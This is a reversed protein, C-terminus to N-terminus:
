GGLHRRRGGAQQGPPNLRDSWMEGCASPHNRCVEENRSLRLMWDSVIEMVLYDPALAGTEGEQLLIVVSTQKLDQNRVEQSLSFSQHFSLGWVLRPLLQVGGAHLRVGNCLQQWM